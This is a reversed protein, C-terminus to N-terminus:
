SMFRKGHTQTQLSNRLQDSVRSSVERSACVSDGFLQRTEKWSFLYYEEDSCDTKSLTGSRFPQFEQGSVATIHAAKALILQALFVFEWGTKESTEKVSQLFQVLNKLCSMQMCWIILLRGSLCCWNNDSIRMLVGFIELQGKFQTCCSIPRVSQYRHRYLAYM